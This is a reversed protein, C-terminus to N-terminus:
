LGSRSDCGHPVRVDLSCSHGRCLATKWATNLATDWDSNLAMKRCDPAVLPREQGIVPGRTYDISHDLSPNLGM